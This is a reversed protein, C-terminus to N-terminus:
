VSRGLERQIQRLDGMRACTFAALYDNGTKSGRYPVERDLRSRYEEPVTNRVAIFWAAARRRLADEAETEAQHIVVEGEDLLEGLKDSLQPEGHEVVIEREFQFPEYLSPSGVKLFLPYHGPDTFTLKFWLLHSLDADLTHGRDAWYLAWEHDGLRHATPPMWKGREIVTGTDDCCSALVPEPVLLNVWVNELTTWRTQNTLSIQLLASRTTGERKTVRLDSRGDLTAAALLRPAGVLPLRHVYPLRPAFAALVILATTLGFIVAIAPENETAAAISAAAPLAAIATLTGERGV